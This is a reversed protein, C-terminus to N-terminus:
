RPPPNDMSADPPPLQAQQVPVAVVPAMCSISGIANAGYDLFPSDDRRDRNVQSPIYLYCVRGDIPDRWRQIITDEFPGQYQAQLEMLPLEPKPPFNRQVPQPQSRSERLAAPEQPHGNGCAGLAPLLLLLSLLSSLPVLGARSPNHM